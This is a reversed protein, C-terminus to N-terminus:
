RGARLITSLVQIFPRRAPRTPLKVCGREAVAELFSCKDFAPIRRDFVPPCLIVVVSQRRERGLKNATSTAIMAASPPRGAAVALAAVAVIGITNLM